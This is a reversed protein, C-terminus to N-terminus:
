RLITEKKKLFQFSKIRLVVNRSDLFSFMTQLMVAPHNKARNMKKLRELARKGYDPEFFPFEPIPIHVYIARLERVSLDKCKLLKAALMRKEELNSSNKLFAVARYRPIERGHMQMKRDLYLRHSLWGLLFCMGVLVLLFIEM